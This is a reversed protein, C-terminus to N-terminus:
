PFVVTKAGNLFVRREAHAKVASVLATSELRRGISILDSVEDSHSVRETEQAIIPGEDLDATVYHATAGIMKVGRAHARHYPRAGKFGPLFAHHINICRGALRETAASSLIQMYRALVILEAGTEEILDFMADEAHTKTTASVPAVHFPARWNALDDRLTEHNSLIAVPEIPLDGIRAGYLLANACHDTRSVMILTRLKEAADYLRWDLSLDNAIAAFGDAFAQRQLPADASFQLRLFFQRAGADGFSRSRTIFFNREALFGAVRAVIGARDPCQLTLIYSKASM